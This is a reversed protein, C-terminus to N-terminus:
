LCNGPNAPLEEFTELFCIDVAPTTDRVPHVVLVISVLEPHGRKKLMSNEM